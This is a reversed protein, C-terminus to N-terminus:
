RLIRRTSANKRAFPSLVPPVPRGTVEAFLDVGKYHHRQFSLSAIAFTAHHVPDPAQAPLHRVVPRCTLRIIRVVAPSFRSRPGQM